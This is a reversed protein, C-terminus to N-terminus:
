EPVFSNLINFSDKVTAEFDVENQESASSEIQNRFEEYTMDYGRHLYMEWMMEDNVEDYTTTYLEDVFESFRGCMM